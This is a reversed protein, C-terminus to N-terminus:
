SIDLGTRPTPCPFLRRGAGCLGGHHQRDRLRDRLHPVQRWVLGRLPILDKIWVPARWFGTVQPLFFPLSFFFIQKRRRRWATSSRRTSGTPTTGVGVGKLTLLSRMPGRRCNELVFLLFDCQPCNWTAQLSLNMTHPNLFPVPFRPPRPVPWAM